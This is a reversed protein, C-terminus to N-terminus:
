KLQYLYYKKHENHIKIKISSVDEIEWKKRSASNFDTFVGLQTALLYIKNHFKRAYKPQPDRNDM